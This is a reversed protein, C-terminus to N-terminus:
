VTLNSRRRAAEPAPDSLDDAAPRPREQGQNIPV